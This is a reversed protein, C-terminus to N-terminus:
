KKSPPILRFQGSDPPISRFQAISLSIKALPIAAFIRLYASRREVNLEAQWDVRDAM